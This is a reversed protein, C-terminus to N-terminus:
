KRSARDNHERHQDYGNGVGVDEDGDQLHAGSLASLLGEGGAGGVECCDSNEISSDCENIHHGFGTVGCVLVLYHRYEVCHHDWHQVGDDIAESVLINFLGHFFQHSVSVM